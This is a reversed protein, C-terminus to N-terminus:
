HVFSLLTTAMETGNECMILVSLPLKEGGEGTHSWEYLVDAFNGPNKVGEGGKDAIKQKEKSGGVRASM